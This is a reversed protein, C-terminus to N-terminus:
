GMVRINMSKRPRREIRCFYTVGPTVAITQPFTFVLWATTGTPLTVEGSEGLLGSLVGSNRDIQSYLRVRLVGPGPTTNPQTHNQFVFGVWDVCSNTPAFSQGM